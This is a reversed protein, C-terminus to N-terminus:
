KAMVEKYLKEVKTLITDPSYRSLVIRGHARMENAKVKDYLVTELKEALDRADGSRFSLCAEELIRSSPGKDSVVLPVNFALSELLTRAFPEPWLAPHVFVDALAYYRAIEEQPLFGPFVVRDGVGLKVALEKLQETYDGKGVLYLVIDKRDIISLSEILVQLGKEVELRGTYIINKTGKHETRPTANALGMMAPDFMNPIVRIKDPDFGSSVYYRKTEESLAIYMDVDRAYRRLAHFQAWHFPMFAKMAIGGKRKMACALTDLPTCATCEDEEFNSPNTCVPVMNNLTAVVKSRNKRAYFVAAPIQQCNYVHIIDYRKNLGKMAKVAYMNLQLLVERRPHPLYRVFGRESTIEDRIDGNFALVDVNMGRSRLGEVLLRCSLACGGTIRPPYDPTIMLVTPAGAKM